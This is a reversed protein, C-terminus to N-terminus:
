LLEFVAEEVGNRGGATIINSRTSPTPSGRPSTTPLAKRFRSDQNTLQEEITM